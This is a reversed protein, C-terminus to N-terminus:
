GIQCGPRREPCSAPFHKGLGRPLLPFSHLRGALSAWVCRDCCFQMALDHWLSAVTWLAQGHRPSRVVTSKRKSILVLGHDDSM